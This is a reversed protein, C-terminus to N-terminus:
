RPMSSLLRGLLWLLSWWWSLLWWWWGRLPMLLPRGRGRRPRGGEDTAATETRRIGGELGRRLARTWQLRVRLLWRRWRTGPGGASSSSAAARVRGGRDIQRHVNGNRQIAFLAISPASPAHRPGVLPRPRFGVCGGSGTAHHRRGVLGHPFAFARRRIAQGHVRLGFGGDSGSGGGGFGRGKKM